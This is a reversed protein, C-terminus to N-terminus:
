CRCTGRGASRTSRRRRWGPGPSSSRGRLRGSSGRSPSVRRGVGATLMRTRLRFCRGADQAPPLGPGSVADQAPPSGSGAFTLWRTSPRGVWRGLGAERAPLLFRTRLRHRVPGSFGRGSGTAFRLRRLHAVTDFPVTVGRLSESVADQAMFDRTRLLGSRWRLGDRLARVAITSCRARRSAWVRALEPTSEEPCPDAPMRPALCDRTRLRHRVPARRCPLCRALETGVQEPSGKRLHAVTDFPVTVGRLSESM